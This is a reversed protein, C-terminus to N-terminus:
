HLECGTGALLASIASNNGLDTSFQRGTNERKYLRPVSTRELLGLRAVPITPRTNQCMHDSCASATNVQAWIPARRM